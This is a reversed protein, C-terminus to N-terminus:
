GQGADEKCAAPTSKFINSRRKWNIVVSFLFDNKVFEYFPRNYGRIALNFLKIYSAYYKKLSEVM